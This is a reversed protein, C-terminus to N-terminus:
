IFKTFHRKKGVNIIEAQAFKEKTEWILLELKDGIKLDKDDFLRWTANNRGALIEQALVRRFKLTKINLMKAAVSKINKEAAARARIM